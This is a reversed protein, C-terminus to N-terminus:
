LWVEGRLMGELEAEPDPPVDLPAIPAVELVGRYLVPAMVGDTGKLVPTAVGDM